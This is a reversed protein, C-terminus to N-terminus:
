GCRADEFFENRFIPGWFTGQFVMNSLKESDSAEGDVVIKANRYRLWFRFLQIAKSPWGKRELKLRLRDSSVKDFAGSVDSSYMAIKKGSNFADLWWLVM